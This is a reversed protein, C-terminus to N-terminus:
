ATAHVSKWEYFVIIMCYTTFLPMVRYPLVLISFTTPPAVLYDYHPIYRCALYLSSTHMLKVCMTLCIMTTLVVLMM